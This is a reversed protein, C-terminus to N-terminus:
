PGHLPDRDNLNGYDDIGHVWPCVSLYYQPAVLFIGCQFVNLLLCGPSLSTKISSGVGGGGREREREREREVEATTRFM